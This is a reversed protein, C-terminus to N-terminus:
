LYELERLKKFIQAAIKSPKDGGKGGYELFVTLAIKPREIPSFGAFWAHTNQAGTQATGTKGAIELGVVGANKATGDKDEVAKKLGEKIIKFTYKSIDLQQSERSFIEVSDIQKVLFPKVLRGETAVANIMKLIQIPTVLLYGQGIALNATDGEYWAEKRYRKKWMRSPVVGSAEYPLDIETPVGFNYRLAYDVLGDVGVRRGLQYFFVNCSNKIGEKITQLSHGSKKWCSFRRNGVMYFGKCDLQETVDIKKLELVSSATVIKFISGPPYAGSIARNILPYNRRTLLDKVLSTDTLSVFINPDFDPKSVLTLIEGSESNMVIAAGKYRKLLSDVYRELEIDITTIIDRGKEPERIGLIRLRRGRSDVETQIGGDEGKLYDDYSLELGSRGVYDRPKYGYDKLANLEEDTIRGLYGIIHSGINGNPYYRRPYTHIILGPYDIDRESIVIATEKGIDKKIVVPIFPARATEKVKKKLTTFPVQLILSLKKLRKDDARFEQPIVACDFALRSGALLNGKRDYINGHPAILPVLRIRNKRSLELYYDGM